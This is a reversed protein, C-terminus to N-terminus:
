RQACGSTFWVGGMEAGYRAYYFAYLSKLVGSEWARISAAPNVLMLPQKRRPDEIISFM